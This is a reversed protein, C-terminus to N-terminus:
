TDYILKAKKRMVSEKRKSFLFNPLRPKLTSPNLPLLTKLKRRMLSEVPSCGNALPTAHYELLAVHPDVGKKLM